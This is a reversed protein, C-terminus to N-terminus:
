SGQSFPPFGPLGPMTERAGKNMQTLKLWNRLSEEQWGSLSSVPVSRQRKAKGSFVRLGKGRVPYGRAMSPFGLCM